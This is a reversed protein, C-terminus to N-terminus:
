YCHGSFPAGLKRDSRWKCSNPKFNPMENGDKDYVMEKILKGDKITYEHRKHGSKKYKIILGNKFSNDDQINKAYTEYKKWGGKDWRISLNDELNTEKKKQGNKFWYTSVGEREGDEYTVESKKQGNKYTSVAKGTFPKTQNIEYMIGNRDQLKSGEIVKEFWWANTLTSILLCIIILLKNM